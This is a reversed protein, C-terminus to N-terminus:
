TVVNNNLKDWKQTLLSLLLFLMWQCVKKIVKVINTINSLTEYVLRSPYNQKGKERDKGGGKKCFGKFYNM